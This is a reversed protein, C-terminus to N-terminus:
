RLEIRNQMGVAVNEVLVKVEKIQIGAVNYVHEAVKQQLLTTLDPIGGDPGVTMQIHVGLGEEHPFFRTKIEKIEPIQNAAQKVLTDIAALAIRIEGGEAQLVVSTPMQSGTPRLQAFFVWLSLGLILAPIAAYPINEKMFDIFHVIGPGIGPVFPILVIILSVAAILLAWLATIFKSM